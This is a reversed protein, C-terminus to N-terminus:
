NKLVVFFVWCTLHQKVRCFRLCLAVNCSPRSQNRMLGSGSELSVVYAYIVQHCSESINENIRYTKHFM